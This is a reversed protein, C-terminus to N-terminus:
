KRKIDATLLTKEDKGIPPPPVSRGSITKMLTPGTLAPNAETQKAAHFVLHMGSRALHGIYFAWLWDDQSTPQYWGIRPGGAGAGAITDTIDSESAPSGDWDSISATVPVIAHDEDNRLHAVALGGYRHVDDSASLSSNRKVHEEALAQHTVLPGDDRFLDRLIDQLQERIHQAAHASRRKSTM